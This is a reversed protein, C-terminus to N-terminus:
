RQEKAAASDSIVHDILAGTSVDGPETMVLASNFGYRIHRRRTLSDFHAAKEALTMEKFHIISLGRRSLILVSEGPGPAIDIVSDDVLWRRSAYYDIQGNRSLAFAGRPTGFWIKGDIERVCRIDACAIVVKPAVGRQLRCAYCIFTCVTITNKRASSVM